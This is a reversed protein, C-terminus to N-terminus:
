CGAHNYCELWVLLYGSFYWMINLFLLSIISEKWSSSTYNLNALACPICETPDKVRFSPEKIRCNETLLVPLFAINQCNRMGGAGHIEEWNAGSVQSVEQCLKPFVHPLLFPLYQRRVFPEVPARPWHLPCWHFCCFIGKKNHVYIHWINKKNLITLINNNICKKYKCNMKIYHFLFYCSASSHQM